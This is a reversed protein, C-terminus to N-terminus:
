ATTNLLEDPVPTYSKTTVLDRLVQAPGGRSNVLEVQADNAAKDVAEPDLMARLLSELEARVEAYAPDAHLDALEEPDTELDFLEPAHGVYYILKYRGRRVMFSGAPSGAAHYESFAVREPEDDAAALTFLSEGPAQADAPLGTAELVTPHVDVLTVPTACVRGSPVGAGAMILPIGSAEEYHNSKGWMGRAGANEGHDSTYLVRTDETLGHAELAGVVAGVQADMFSCLGLYAALAVRNQHDDYQDAATKAVHWALAPHGEFGASPAAKPSPMNDPDYLDYFEQPAVLPFHPTVFSVFLVWPADADRAAARAIWDCAHRTINRDYQTYESEGPGAAPIIGSPKLMPVHDPFQNRISLHVMGVGDKIHMPIYQEDLGVDDTTARYHLKGISDVQYGQAQLAHGWGKVRGDYGMANDWYGIQHVFRGTAFSARAPVCIPCTTYASTFRTGREALADLHPTKVLPHGASGLMKPNHEDAMIILLNKAEM